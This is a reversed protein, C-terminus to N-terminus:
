AWRQLRMGECAPRPPPEESAAKMIRRSSSRKPEVHTNGLHLAICCLQTGVTGEEDCGFWDESRAYTFYEFRGVTGFTVQVAIPEREDFGVDSDRGCFGIGGDCWSFWLLTAAIDNALRDLSPAMFEGVVEFLRDEVFM